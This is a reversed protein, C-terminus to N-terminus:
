KKAKTAIFQVYNNSHENPLKNTLRNLLTM